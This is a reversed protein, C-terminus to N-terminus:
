GRAEGRADDDPESAPRDNTGHLAMLLLRIAAETAGSTIQEPTGACSLRRCGEGGPTKWGVFVTGVPQDDQRAPGAVGTVSIGVDSGFVETVRRAMEMAADASVVQDAAVGLVRRKADTAYAVVGGLMREGTGPCACLREAIAGRTVSEAAAITWGRGELLELLRNEAPVVPMAGPRTETTAIELKVTEIM